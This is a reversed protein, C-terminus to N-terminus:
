LNGAVTSAWKEVEDASVLRGTEDTAEDAWWRMIEVAGQYTKPGVAESSHYRGEGTAAFLTALVNEDLILCPHRPNGAGAFYLYRTFFPLTLHQLSPVKKPQMALFGDIAAQRSMKVGTLLVAEAKERDKAVAQVRKINLRPNTGSPYM